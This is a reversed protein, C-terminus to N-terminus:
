TSTASGTVPPAEIFVDMQQGVYVPLKGRQFSYIVQLVRTDVRETSEGTLSKKPVVYPEVRVFTLDTKLKPNGRVHAVARRPKETDIRWADNEDVDVRVYLTQTDGLLMLPTALPGPQAYEGPRVKVQLVTADVPAKITRRDIEAETQKVAAEASAIDSEAIKIDPEWTGAKLLKLEAEAAAKKAMASALRAEATQVAYRRKDIDDQSVARPDSVREWLALTNKADAVLSQAETIAAEGERVRAEAPPIDEARPLARLRALKAKASAVAAQRMELEAQTVSDRVRFLPEGKKVDQGISVFVDTVINGVPTSIAINETRAEVIGAGAVYSEFEAKAPQTVPQAPIPERNGVVVTRIAFLVGVLALLPLLYKRIM